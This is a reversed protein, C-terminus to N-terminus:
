KRTRSLFCLRFPVGRSVQFQNALQRRLMDNEEELRQARKRWYVVDDAHTAAM